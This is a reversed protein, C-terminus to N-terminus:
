KLIQDIPFLSESLKVCYGFVGENLVEEAIEHEKPTGRLQAISLAHRHKEVALEVNTQLVTEFNRGLMPEDLAYNMHKNGDQLYLIFLMRERESEDPMQM